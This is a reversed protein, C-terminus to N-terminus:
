ARLPKPQPVVPRPNLEGRRWECPWRLTVELCIVRQSVGAPRQMEVRFNTPKERQLARITAWDRSESSAPHSALLSSDPALPEFGRSEGWVLGTSLFGKFHPMEEIEFQRSTKAFIGPPLPIFFRGLADRAQSEPPQHRLTMHSPSQELPAFQSM